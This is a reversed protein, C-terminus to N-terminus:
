QAFLDYDLASPREFSTELWQQENEHSAKLVGLMMELVHLSMEGSVRPQSGSRICHVMDAVGLGRSNQAFGPILPVDEVVGMGKRLQVYRGPEPEKPSASIGGFTNPDPLSLTGETGWVTLLPLKSDWYPFTLDWTTTISAIVGNAFEVGGNIYTDVECPFESGHIPSTPSLAKRTPFTARSLGNVRKAPGFLAALATFYYPGMDLLPGAGLAYFFAPNPHFTEPGRALMFGQAGVPIGIAGEDILKLCTQIGAGLFTDPASAVQLGKEKALSLLEKGEALTEALPKESYVHKGALLSRKAIDYHASPTTLNVVLEIKEDAILEDVTMARLGFQQARKAATEGSIDACAVVDLAHDFRTTMNTLYIESIMGCGIVGIKMKKM